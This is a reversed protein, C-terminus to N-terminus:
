VSHALRCSSSITVVTLVFAMGPGPTYHYTGPLVLPSVRLGAKEAPGEVAVTSSPRPPDKGGLKGQFVGANGVGSGLAHPHGLVVGLLSLVLDSDRTARRPESLVQGSPTGGPPQSSLHAPGAVSWLVAKGLSCGAGSAFTVAESRATPEALLVFLQLLWWM